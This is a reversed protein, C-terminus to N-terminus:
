GPQSCKWGGSKLMTEWAEIANHRLMRRVVPQGGGRLPSRSISWKHDPGQEVDLCSPSVLRHATAVSLAQFLIVAHRCVMQGDKTAFTSSM